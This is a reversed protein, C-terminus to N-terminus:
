LLELGMPCTQLVPKFDEWPNWGWDRYPKLCPFWFGWGCNACNSCWLTAKVMVEGDLKFSFCCGVSDTYVIVDLKIWQIM